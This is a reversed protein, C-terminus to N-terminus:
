NPNLGTPIGRRALFTAFDKALSNDVRNAVNQSDLRVNGTPNSSFDGSIAFSPSSCFQEFTHLPKTVIIKKLQYEEIISHIESSSLPQLDHACAAPVDLLRWYGKQGFMCNGSEFIDKSHSLSDQIKKRWNSYFEKTAGPWLISWHSEFFPYIDRVLSFWVQYKKTNKLAEFACILRRKWGHKTMDCVRNCNSCLGCNPVECKMNPLTKGKIDQNKLLETSCGL